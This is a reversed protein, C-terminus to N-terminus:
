KLDLEVSETIEEEKKKFNGAYSMKKTSLIVQKSV